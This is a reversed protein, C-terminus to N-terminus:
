SPPTLTSGYHEAVVIFPVRRQAMLNESLHVSSALCAACSPWWSPHRRGRQKRWLRPWGLVVSWCTAEKGTEVELCETLLELGEPIQALQLETAAIARRDTRLPPVFPAAHPPASYRGSHHGSGTAYYFASEHPGRQM